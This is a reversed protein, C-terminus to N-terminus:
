QGTEQQRLQTELQANLDRQGTTVLDFQRLTDAVVNSVSDSDGNSYSQFGDIARGMASLIMGEVPEACNPVPVSSFDSRLRGMLVVDDYVADSSKAGASSVLDVFKGVYFTSYELWDSLEQNIKCDGSYTITPPLSVTVPPPPTRTANDGLTCSALFLALVTVCLLHVTRM